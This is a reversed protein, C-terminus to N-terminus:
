ATKTEESPVVAMRMKRKTYLEQAITVINSTILYLAVAASFRYAIYFIFVPIMYTMQNQMMKSMRAQMGDGQPTSQRKKMLIGQILQTLAAIGALIVSKSAIDILGLFHMNLTDPQNVFSYLAVDAEGLGRFFVLYLAVLIPFQIILLLCGTFPNAKNEKYLAFIKKNQEASDKIEDKIKQVQPELNRVALQSEISRQTLPFLIIKVLLTLAIVALGVDANPM